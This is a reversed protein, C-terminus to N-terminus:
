LETITLKVHSPIVTFFCNRSKDNVLRVEPGVPNTFATYIGFPTSSSLLTVKNTGWGSLVVFRSFYPWTCKDSALSLQGSPTASWAELSWLENARRVITIEARNGVGWFTQTISRGDTACVKLFAMLPHPDCMVEFTNTELEPHPPLVIAAASAAGAGMAREPAGEHDLTAGPVFQPAALLTGPKPKSPPVAPPTSPVACGALAVLCVISALPRM